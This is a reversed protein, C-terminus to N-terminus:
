LGLDARARLYRLLQERSLLGVMEGRELVPVQNVNSDDMTRLAALLESDPAVRVLREWPVMVQGATIRSWESRPVRSLDTLTLMGKAHGDDAVFFCRGGGTLIKEEVLQALPLGAPVLPCDRTMVQSVRVGRLSHQLNAQAHSAAAANQM